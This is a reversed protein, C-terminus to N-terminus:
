DRPALSAGLREVLFTVVDNMHMARSGKVLVVDGPTVLEALYEALMNQQDYHAVFPCRATSSIHEALSGYTLLYGIGLRTVEQGIREHEPVGAEGLERMDALVAIRKGSAATAALTELAAMMSDPNANYTDDMITVGGVRTLAMRGRVARFTELASKIEGAPVRFALGVAAAALANHAAHRGPVGLAVALPKKWRRAQIQFCAQGEADLRLHLGRLDRARGRFGYRVVRRLRRGASALHPDDANIFAVARRVGGLYELLAGEERAVGELSGFFELHERAISTVLGHTPQAIECLTRIEGPHNTGIEVVAVEDRGGLRFLTLPVGIQNNLNGETALVRYRRRLVAAMMEKTTTKGNSGAVAVVPLSFKRRHLRALEGLGRLPDPVVVLPIGPDQMPVDSVMAAAAGRRAAEALFQHGDFREGRLAVFL